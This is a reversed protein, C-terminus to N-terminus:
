VKGGGGAEGSVPRDQPNGHKGGQQAFKDLIDTWGARHAELAVDNSLLEHQLVILCGGDKARFEVSVRSDGGGFPLLWSFVLKEPRRIEIYEGAHVLVHGDSTQMDIRFAGGITPNLEAFSVRTDGPCMWRRLSDANLWMDFAVEPTAPVLKTLTVQM